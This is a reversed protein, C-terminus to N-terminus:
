VIVEPDLEYETLDVDPQEMLEQAAAQMELADDSKMMMARDYPVSTLSPSFSRLGLTLGDRNVCARKPMPNFSLEVKRSVWQGYAPRDGTGAARKYRRATLNGSVSISTKAGCFRSVNAVTAVGDVGYKQWAEEIIQWSDMVVRRGVGRARISKMHCASCVGCKEDACVTDDKTLGLPFYIGPRAIFMGNPANKREWGGLPKGSKGTGTPLPDPPLISHDRTLLGDTAMMLVDSRDKHLGLMHLLQARTGSTIMGAWIWSNYIANGISQALKGYCSNMGLKIVIGPGEKGIKLRQLYYEPIKGFPRCGCNSSYVWAEHFKVHPFLREGALYEDLWLWGGGSTVPFSISGDKTRFPFPGWDRIRPNSGLSYRVLAGSQAEAKEIDNRRTTHTWSGHELCPLFALQYVYASSIDWNVLPQRISGIVSNEFRGGFFASAVAVRMNEPTPSLKEKIGMADLMAGGSSGAGYYSKLKLGVEIHSETLKRALTAICRTEELCYERIETMAKAMDGDLMRDFVSRNDKMTAVRKWLTENGVKWDKIATVFKAQFFKFLDWIVVRQKGRQVTFKTGQLNLRYSEPHGDDECEAKCLPCWEVPNPGYLGPRLEPRFLKYLTADPLDTLMKTIDYNFAFSFVKTRKTPLELIMDLCRITSLRQIRPNSVEVKWSQDGTEDSAALLIYRHDKRGTGEGDIGIYTIQQGYDGYRRDRSRYERIRHNGEYLACPMGTETIHECVGFKGLKFPHDVRHRHASMGCIRCPQGVPNHNARIRPNTQTSM